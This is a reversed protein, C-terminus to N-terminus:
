RQERTFIYFSTWRKGSTDEKAVKATFGQAKITEVVRQAQERWGKKTLHLEIAIVRVTSPIDNWSFGYEGGEIDVKLATPKLDLLEKFAITKVPVPTRGRHEVVSHMGKNKGENKWLLISNGSESTVAAEKFVVSTAPASLREINKRWQASNEPDPEVAVIQAVKAELAVRTFAGINAGIDLVIDEAKLNMAEYCKSEAIVFDDLTDPRREMDPFRM